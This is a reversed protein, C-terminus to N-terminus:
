VAVILFPAIRATAIKVSAIRINASGSRNKKDLFGLVIKSAHSYQKCGKFKLPSPLVADKVFSFNILFKIRLKKVFFKIILSTFYFSNCDKAM